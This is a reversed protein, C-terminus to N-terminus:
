YSTLNQLYDLYKSFSNKKGIISLLKKHIKNPLLMVLNKQRSVMYRFICIHFEEVAIIAFTKMERWIDTM